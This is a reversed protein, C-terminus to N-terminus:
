MDYVSPCVVARRVYCTENNRVRIITLTCRAVFALISLRGWRAFHPQVPALVRNDALQGQISSNLSVRPSSECCLTHVKSCIKRVLIVVPEQNIRRNDLVRRLLLGRLSTLLLDERTNVHMCVTERWTKEQEHWSTWYFTSKFICDRKALTDM